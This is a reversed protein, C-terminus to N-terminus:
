TDKRTFIPSMVENLDKIEDKYCNLATLEIEKNIKDEVTKNKLGSIQLYRVEVKEQTVAKEEIKM